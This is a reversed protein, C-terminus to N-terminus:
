TDAGTYKCIYAHIYLAYLQYVHIYTYHICICVCMYIYIYIYM